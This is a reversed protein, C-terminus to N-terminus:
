KRRGLGAADEEPFSVLLRSRFFYFFFTRGLLFPCVGFGVCVFCFPLFFFIFPSPLLTPSSLTWKHGIFISSHSRGISPPYQGATPWWCVVIAPRFTAVSWGLFFSSNLFFLYRWLLYERRPTSSSSSFFLGMVVNSGQWFFFSLGAPTTWRRRRSIINWYFAFFLFLFSLFHRRRVFSAPGMLCWCGTDSRTPAVATTLKM